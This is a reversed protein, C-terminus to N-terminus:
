ERHAARAYSAELEEIVQQGNQVLFEELIAHGPMM